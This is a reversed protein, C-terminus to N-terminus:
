AAAEEGSLRGAATFRDGYVATIMYQHVRQTLRGARFTRDAVMQKSGLPDLIVTDGIVDCGARRLVDVTLSPLGRYAGRRDRVDGVVVCVFRDRHLLRVSQALVEEYAAAFDVWGMTSLDRPDSSYVELDGYPPCTFLMDGEFGVGVLREIGTSDGAIWTPPVDPSGLHAQGRNAEVQQASLDVGTYDRGMCSAVVGRVSGGAFPDLIRDGERSYWLYALEALAPDFVSTGAASSESTIHLYDTEPHTLDTPRGESSTIGIARWSASRGRWRSSRRDIVSMPPELWSDTLTHSPASPPADFLPTLASM